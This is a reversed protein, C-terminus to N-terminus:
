ESKKSVMRMCDIGKELILDDEGGRTKPKM